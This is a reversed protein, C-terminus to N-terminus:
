KLPTAKVLAQVGIERSTGANALIKSTPCCWSGITVEFDAAESICAQRSAIMVLLTARVAAIGDDDDDEEADEVNAAEDDDDDEADEINTAEEEDDDPLRGACSENEEDSWGKDFFTALALSVLRLLAMVRSTAIGSVRPWRIALIAKSDATLASALFCALSSKACVVHTENTVFGWKRSM